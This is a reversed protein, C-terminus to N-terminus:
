RTRSKIWDASITIDDTIVSILYKEEGVFFQGKYTFEGSKVLEMNEVEKEFNGKILLVTNQEVVEKDKKPDECSLVTFAVALVLLIKKM